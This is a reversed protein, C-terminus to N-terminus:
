EKQANLQRVIARNPIRLCLMAPILASAAALYFCWHWALTAPMNEQLKNLLLSLLAIGLCFSLQRNINWLASAQALQADNVQLFACSQATSSCLSGGFGMMAFALLLLPYQQASGVQSLVLIGLGQMICGTILLPRPGFRNFQKGTFTIAIFSALSWPIMLSGVHTANMGLQNQLYLMAVLNVGIFIGPIAQYIMMANRLLPNLVLRLNLLPHSHQLSHRVYGALMVLGGALMVLGSALGDSEALRTLGLLILLLASCGSLLGIADLPTRTQTSSERRLWLAALLLALLALPLNAYFVWRWSLTDVILGGLAPSIAPALLGVLMIAASLGAREHPRYLQYALTQGVPILLGGGMGQLLRWGILQGISQAGGAGLTAVLFIGLSLLFVRHGGVKEALWASLPIVLTLGLIYANSVWTLESVSAGLGHGIAPYAVNAIFMNILDVFFGLLYVVAVKTRYPM